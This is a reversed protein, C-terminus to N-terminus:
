GPLSLLVSVLRDSRRNRQALAMRKPETQHYHRRRQQRRCTRCLRYKRGRKAGRQWQTNKPTYEHGHPCVASIVAYEL